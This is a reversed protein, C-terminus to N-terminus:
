RYTNGVPGVGDSNNEPEIKKEGVMENESMTGKAVGKYSLYDAVSGTKEFTEWLEKETM